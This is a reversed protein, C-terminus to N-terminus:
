LRRLRQMVSHVCCFASCTTLFHDPTGTAALLSSANSMSKSASIASGLAGVKFCAYPCCVKATRAVKCTMRVWWSRLKDTIRCCARRPRADADLCADGEVTFLQLRTNCAGSRGRIRTYRVSAWFVRTIASTKGTLFYSIRLATFPLWYSNNIKSSARFQSVDGFLGHMIKNNSILNSPNRHLLHAM